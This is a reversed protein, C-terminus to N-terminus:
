TDGYYWAFVFLAVITAFANYNEQSIVRIIKDQSSNCCSTCCICLKFIIDGSIASTANDHKLAKDASNVCCLIDMNFIVVMQMIVNIKAREVHVVHRLPM